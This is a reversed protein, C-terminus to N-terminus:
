VRRLEFLMAAGPALLPLPVGVEALFHGSATLGAGDALWAPDHVAHRAAAGVETRPRLEYRSEPDLGPIRTRPTSAVASTATRVWAFVAHDGETSVVGHLISGPDVEDTRVTRGHHLLPRLERYLAAWRRLADREDPTCTTVDWEIGAHGFLATILRFSMSAARHTTEAVPPGVHAGAVEPPVLVGTWRQIAQREIPDNSDSAWVRQARRLVGLDVRAGGSACSEIELRPHRRRLEDVLAYFATTQAHVAARGSHPSVAAHLDRNHDWKVFDVGAETIVADLRALIHAWADPHTLDLVLQHRWTPPSPHASLIWDPHARALDSDPNVMEPEFWLGFQMGLGHVLDSLPRLGDPWKATDVVWDGLARRDDTRGAFWGDDLVFREVGIDAAARALEAIREPRHDFYVAEWTNLVLPRPTDPHGPLRRAAGHLRESVGDIGRTSHALYLLPSRYTDGGALRVEGPRLGEGGGLVSTHVGAGEPLREVIMETDGSWALHAAWLEGDRFGFGPTGVLTVFADDHGRRGRRGARVHAGDRVPLRQPRREGTWAGTHDAIEEARAPLPVLIRAAALDLPPAAADATSTIQLQATLAGDVDIAYDLTVDAAAVADTFGLRLTTATADVARLHLLPASATGARHWALAPTGSWGDSEVPLVPFRRPEDFSSFTVAGADTDLLLAADADTLETGWHLVRPASADCAVVLSTGAARLHALTITDGTENPM